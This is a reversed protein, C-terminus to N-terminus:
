EGFYQKLKANRQRGKERQMKQAHNMDPFGNRERSELEERNAIVIIAVSYSGTLRDLASQAIRAIGLGSSVVRFPQQNNRAFFFHFRKVDAM